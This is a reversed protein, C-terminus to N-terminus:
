EPATLTWSRVAEGEIEARWVVTIQREERDPLGLHSGTTHGVITVTAGEHETRHRHIAYRPFRELYGRWAVVNAVRGVLPPEDFVVLTHDDTM